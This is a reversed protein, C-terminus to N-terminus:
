DVVVDLCLILHTLDVADIVECVQPPITIVAHEVEESLPVKDQVVELTVGQARQVRIALLGQTVQQEPLHLLGSSQSLVNCVVFPYTFLMLIMGVAEETVHNLTRDLIGM